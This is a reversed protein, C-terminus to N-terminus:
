GDRAHNRSHPLWRPDKPIHNARMFVSMVALAIRFAVVQAAALIGLIRGGAQILFMAGTAPGNNPLIVDKVVINVTGSSPM